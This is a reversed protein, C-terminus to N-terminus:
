HELRKQGYVGIVKTKGVETIQDIHMHGHLFLAPQMKEIYPVFAEFSSVNRMARITSNDHHLFALDAKGDSDFDEIVVTRYVQAVLYLTSEQFICHHRTFKHKSIGIAAVMEPKGDGNLDGFKLDIAGM